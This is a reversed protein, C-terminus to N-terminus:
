LLSVLPQYLTDMLTHVTQVIFEGSQAEAGTSNLGGTCFMRTDAKEGGGTMECVRGPHIIFLLAENFIYLTWVDESILQDQQTLHDQVITVGSDAGRYPLWCM